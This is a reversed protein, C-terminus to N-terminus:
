IQKRKIELGSSAKGIARSGRRRIYLSLLDEIEKKKLSPMRPQPSHAGPLLSFSRIM